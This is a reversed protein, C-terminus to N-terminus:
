CSKMLTDVEDDALPKVPTEGLLEDRMERVSVVSKNLRHNRTMDAVTKVFITGTAVLLYITVPNRQGGRHLRSKWQEFLGDVTTPEVAVANWCVHQLGDIGVGGASYNMIILRCKPDQIFRDKEKTSDSPGYILAPHYAAYRKALYRVTDQYHCGVALKHDHLGLDAIVEDLMDYLRSPTELRLTDTHGVAKMCTHRVQGSETIDLMAGDEFELMREDVLQRYLKKHEPSLDFERRIVSMEKLDMVQRKEVRRAQLYLNQRLIETRKFSEIKAQTRHAIQGNPKAYPIRIQTFNVHRGNFHERNTYVDPTLTKIYGYLDTLDKNSPTGQMVLLGKDYVTGQQQEGLWRRLGIVTKSDLGRLCRAEDAVCVMYEAKFVAWELRLMDYTMVVIHPFGGARWRDYIKDRQKPTGEWSEIHIHNTIGVFTRCFSNIFQSTLIPPMLAIGKSGAWANWILYAQAVLTKGTGPEDFLASRLNDYKFALALGEVQTWRPKARNGDNDYLVIQIEDAWEPSPSLGAEEYFMKLTYNM